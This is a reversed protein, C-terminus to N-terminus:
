LGLGKLKTSYADYDTLMEEGKEIDRLAYFKGSIGSEPMVNPASGPGYEKGGSNMLVSIDMGTHIFYPGYIVHQQTWFWDTSDCAFDRPLSFVFRRWALANPFVVDSQDGDHVLEHKKIDRSAFLGRGKGQSFKPYYPPPVPIGKELSYSYGMTPPVPDDWQKTSDVVQTFTDRMLQWDELTPLPKTM